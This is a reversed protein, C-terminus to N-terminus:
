LAELLRVDVARHRLFGRDFTVITYEGAEAFAALYADTWFNPGTHLYKTAERWAMELRPPEQAFIVRVDSCLLDYAAWAGAATLVEPGMIKSNTLLRLLGSQTIRCLAAQDAEETEDFWSRAISHHV